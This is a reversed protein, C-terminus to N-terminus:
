DTSALSETQTNSHSSDIDSVQLTPPSQEDKYFELPGKEGVTDAFWFAYEMDLKELGSMDTPLGKLQLGIHPLAGPIREHQSVIDKDDVYFISSTMGDFATDSLKFTSMVEWGEGHQVWVWNGPLEVEMTQKEKSDMEGDIHVIVQEQHQDVFAQTTLNGGEVNLDCYFLIQPNKILNALVTGKGVETRNPFILGQEYFSVESNMGFLSIGAVVLYIKSYVTARVPGDRVGLIKIRVNDVSNFGVKFYKSFINASAEFYIEDLIKHHADSGYNNSLDRFELFNEPNFDLNFFTTDINANDETQTYRIYDVDSRQSNHEILYAYRNRGQRDTFTFEKLLNGNQPATVGQDYRQESADRLMFILEDNPDVEGYVGDIANTNIEPIYIYRSKSDYEDFQFPIPKMKGDWVAMVSLQQIKRHLVAPIERGPIKIPHLFGFHSVNFSEVLEKVQLDSLRSFTARDKSLNGPSLKSYKLFAQYEPESVTNKSQTASTSTAFATAISGPLIFCCVALKILWSKM